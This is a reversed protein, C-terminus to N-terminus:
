FAHLNGGLSVVDIVLSNSSLREHTDKAGRPGSTQTTMNAAESTWEFSSLQQSRRRRVVFTTISFPISPSWLVFATVGSLWPRWIRDVHSLRQSHSVFTFYFAQERRKHYVLSMSQNSVDFVFSADNMDPTVTRVSLATFCPWGLMAQQRACSCM